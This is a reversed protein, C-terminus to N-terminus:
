AKGEELTVRLLEVFAAREDERVAIPMPADVAEEVTLGHVVVNQVATIMQLRHKRRMRLMEDDTM